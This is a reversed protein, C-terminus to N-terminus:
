FGLGIWNNLLVLVSCVSSCYCSVANWLKSLMAQRRRELVSIHDEMRIEHEEYEDDPYSSGMGDSNSCSNCTSSSTSVDGNYVNNSSSSSLEESPHHNDADDLDFSWDHCEVVTGQQDLERLIMQQQRDFFSPHLPPTSTRRHRPQNQQQPQQQSSSSNSPAINTASTSSSTNKNTRQDQQQKKRFLIGTPEQKLPHKEQSVEKAEEEELEEDDDDIDGETDLPRKYTFNSRLIPPLTADNSSDLNSVPIPFLAEFKEFDNEYPDEIAFWPRLGQDMLNLDEQGYQQHQMINIPQTDHKNAPLPKAASKVNTIKPTETTTSTTAVFTVGDMMVMQDEESSSSKGFVMLSDEADADMQDGDESKIDGLASTMMVNSFVGDATTRGYINMSSPHMHMNMPAVHRLGLLSRSSETGTTVTAISYSMITSADNHTQGSSSADSSLYTMNSDNNNNNNNNNNNLSSMQKANYQFFSAIPVVVEGNNTNNKNDKNRTNENDNRKSKM